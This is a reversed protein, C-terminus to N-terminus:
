GKPGPARAHLHAAEGGAEALLRLAAAESRPDDVRVWLLVAGANLAAAFAASHENAAIRDLVEKLAAGGLGAAIVAAITAGVPGTSLLVIGAVTLPALYGVEDTLGAFLSAGPKGPYGPLEGAVELSDHSALVSLDAPKFGADLLAAVARRLAAKDAFSAVAERIVASSPQDHPRAM